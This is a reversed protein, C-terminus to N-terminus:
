FFFILHPCVVVCSSCPDRPLYPCLHFQWKQRFHNGFAHPSGHSPDTVLPWIRHNICQLLYGSITADVCADPIFLSGYLWVLHFCMHLQCLRPHMQSLTAVSHAPSPPQAKLLALHWVNSSLFLNTVGSEGDRKFSRDWFGRVAKWKENNNGDDM